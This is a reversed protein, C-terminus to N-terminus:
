RPAAGSCPPATIARRGSSLVGRTAPGPPTWSPGRGGSCCGRRGRQRRQPLASHMVMFSCGAVEAVAVTDDRSGADAVLVESILGATAGPVLAALTRVLLRESDHTAIVVSLM